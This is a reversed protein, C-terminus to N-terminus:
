PPYPLRADKEDDGVGDGDDSNDASRPLTYLIPEKLVWPKDTELVRIKSNALHTKM